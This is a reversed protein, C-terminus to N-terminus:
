ASAGFTYVTIRGFVGIGVAVINMYEIQQRELEAVALWRTEPSRTRSRM